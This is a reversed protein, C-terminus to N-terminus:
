AITVPSQPADTRAARVRLFDALASATLAKAFLWGQGYQVGRLLLYDVQAEHEIGEAVIELGLAHAMAIIHPAVISSAAEQAITDIFSKDIKLVDVRFNQLYALSSYGTGFDDIYIPHGASRFAAITQRTAEADLFSRETAEIRLQQPHINTGTLRARLVHLFRDTQLDASGVNISVYFASDALLHAGLERLVKDLVLDTLPQLLAREEAIPVFVDPAIVQGDLQWRALAEVGVCARDRLRVVPQYHVDIEERRIARELLVPLSRERSLLRLTLWGLTGGVVIGASLWVALLTTWQGFLRPRPSRAVVGLPRTSSRAVSYLWHPDDFEGARRWANLMEDADAGSSVAFVKGVDVNVAAISRGAPDIVDVYSQPDLTVYNGGRGIVITDRAVDLPLTQHFWVQFGDKSRWDPAPLLHARASVDGLLASCRYIGNGYVGADQVYRYSFVVRRLADAKDPSCANGPIRAIDAIAAFAQYSVLESRIVAKAAFQHLDRQARALADERAAYLSTLVPAVTAVCTLAIYASTVTLRSM